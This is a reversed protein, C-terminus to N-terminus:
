IGFYSLVTNATAKHIYSNGIDSLVILNANKDSFKKDLRIIERIKQIDMKPMEFPLKYKKCIEVLKSYTSLTTLGMKESNHTIVCMGIAVAEGHTYLSYEFYNEIVHGLTHGFNLLMRVGTDKEDEEVLEKKITVCKLIVQELNQQLDSYDRSNMLMHFLEKDKIAGYKIVEAMGNSWHEQPLTSLLEPDIFVAQPQYFSGVLNKGSKLNVGTKGGISSDVQALLTTPIQVYPIGRLYTSAAFGALDGIVGGGFAIIMNSRNIDLATLQNYIHELQKISKSQEGAPVTITKVTYGSNSLIDMLKDGYLKEVNSDTIIVIKEGSFDKQLLSGIKNILGNEIYINYTSTGPEVLVKYM